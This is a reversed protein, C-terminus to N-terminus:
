QTVLEVFYVNIVEEHHLEHNVAELLEQKLEDKGETTALDALTKEGFIRTIVDWIRPLDPAMEEAFHEYELELAHGSIGMFHLDPDSFELAIVTKAYNQGKLNLVREDLTLIPKPAAAIQEDTYVPPPGSDFYNPKIYFWFAAGFLLAGGILVKKDKLM